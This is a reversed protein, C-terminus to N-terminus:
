CTSDGDGGASGDGDWGYSMLGTAQGTGSPESSCLLLLVASLLKADCVSLAAALM